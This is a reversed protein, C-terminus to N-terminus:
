FFLEFFVNLSLGVMIKAENEKKKDLLLSELNLQSAVLKFQQYKNIFNTFLASEITKSCM